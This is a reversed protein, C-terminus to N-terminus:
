PCEARVKDDYKEKREGHLEEIAVVLCSNHIWGWRMTEPNIARGGQYVLDPNFKESCLTCRVM